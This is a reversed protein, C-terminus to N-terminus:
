NDSKLKYLIKFGNDEAVHAPIADIIVQGDKDDDTVIGLVTATGDDHVWTVPAGVDSDSWADKDDAVVVVKNVTAGKLKGCHTVPGSEDKPTGLNTTWCVKAGENEAAWNRVESGNLAGVIRTDFDLGPFPSAKRAMAEPTQELPIVAVNSEERIYPLKYSTAAPGLNWDQVPGVETGDTPAYRLVAVEGNREVCQGATLMGLPIGDSHFMWGATCVRADDGAGFQIQAGPALASAPAAEGTGHPAQANPGAHPDGNVANSCATMSLAAAVCGATIMDRIRTNM